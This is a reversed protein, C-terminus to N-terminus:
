IWFLKWCRSGHFSRALIEEHDDTLTIWRPTRGISLFRSHSVDARSRYPRRLSGKSGPSAASPWLLPTFLRAYRHDRTFARGNRYRNPRARLSRSKDVTAIAIANALEDVSLAFLKGAAPLPSIALQLAHNFGKAMVPVRATFRCQIEYATALALMFEEGSAGVYEAAALIDRTTVRISYAVRPWTAISFTWM